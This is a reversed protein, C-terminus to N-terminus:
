HGDDSKPLVSPLVRSAKGAVLARKRLMEKLAVGWCVPSAQKTHVAGDLPLDVM